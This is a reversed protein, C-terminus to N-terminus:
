VSLQNILGSEFKRTTEYRHQVLIPERIQHKAEQIRPLSNIRLYSHLSRQTFLPAHVVGCVSTCGGRLGGEQSRLRTHSSACRKRDAMIGEKKKESVSPLQLGMVPLYM